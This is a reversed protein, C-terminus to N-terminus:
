GGEGVGEAVEDEVWVWHVGECGCVCCVDVWWWGLGDM